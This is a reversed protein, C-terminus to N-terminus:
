KQRQQQLIQEESTYVSICKSIREDYKCKDSHFWRCSFKSYISCDHYKPIRQRGISSTASITIARSSGRFNEVNNVFAILNEVTIDDDFMAIKMDNKDTIIVTPTANINFKTARSTGNSSDAINYSITDYNSSSKIHSVFTNWEPNFDIYYYEITFKNRSIVLSIFLVLLCVIILIFNLKIM